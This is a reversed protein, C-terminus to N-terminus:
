QAARRSGPNITRPATFFRDGNSVHITQGPEVPEDQADPVDRWIERDDPVPPNPLRRLEDETLDGDCVRYQKRDLYITIHRDTFFRMGARLRVVADTPILEDQADPIDHWLESAPPRVLDRLDQGSMEELHVTYQRADIFIEIPREHYSTNSM